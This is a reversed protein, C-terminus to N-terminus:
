IAPQRYARLMARGKSAREATEAVIAVVAFFLAGTAVTLLLVACAVGGSNYTLLNRM